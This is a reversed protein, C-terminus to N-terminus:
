PLRNRIGITSTFIKALRRNPITVNAGNFAIIQNAGEIVNSDASVILLNIRVSAVTAWKAANWTGGNNATEYSTIQKNADVLGYLIQMDQVGDVLEENVAIGSSYSIRRLAPLGNAGNGIYYTASQLTLLDM